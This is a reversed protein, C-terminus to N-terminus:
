AGAMSKVERLRKRLRDAPLHRRSRRCCGVNGGTGFFMASVSSALAYRHICMRAASAVQRWDPDRAAIRRPALWPQYQEVHTAIRPRAVARGGAAPDEANFLGALDNADVM